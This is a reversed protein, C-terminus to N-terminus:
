LLGKEKFSLTEGTPSVIIHDLLDIGLINGAERLRKTIALDEKSPTVDGSPHNHYVIIAAARLKVAAIYVERPHVFSGNVTGKGIIERGIVRNRTNLVLVGFEEVPSTGADALYERVHAPETFKPPEGPTERVVLKWHFQKM